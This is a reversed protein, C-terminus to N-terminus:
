SDSNQESVEKKWFVHEPLICNKVLEVYKSPSIVVILTSLCFFYVPALVPFM